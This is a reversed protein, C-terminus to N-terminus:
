RSTAAVISAWVVARERRDLFNFLDNYGMGILLQELEWEWGRKGKKKGVRQADEGGSKAQCGGVKTELWDPDTVRAVM